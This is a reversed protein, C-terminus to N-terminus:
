REKKAALEAAARATRAAKVIEETDLDDATRKGGRDAPEHRAGIEPLTASHIQTREDEAVRAAQVKTRVQEVSAGERIFGAALQPQGALVCLDMVEAAEARVVAREAARIGDITEPTLILVAELGPLTTAELAAVKAKHHDEWQRQCVASRQDNDPHEQNMTDHGMCRSMFDDHPEGNNPAPMETNLIPCNCGMLGTNHNGAKCEVCDCDCEVSKPTGPAAEARPPDVIAGKEIKKVM